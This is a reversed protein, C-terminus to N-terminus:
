HSKQLSAQTLPLPELTRTLRRLEAVVRAPVRYWTGRTFRQLNVGYSLFRNLQATAVIGTVYGNRFKLEFTPVGLSPASTTPPQGPGHYYFVSVTRLVDRKMIAVCRNAGCVRLDGPM